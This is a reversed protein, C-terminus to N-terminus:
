ENREKYIYAEVNNIKTECEDIFLFSSQSGLVVSYLLLLSFSFLLHM